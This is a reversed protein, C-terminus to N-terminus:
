SPVGQLEAPNAPKDAVATKGYRITMRVTTGSAPADISFEDSCRHMNPLGMGAGFGLSRVVENATSYGEKMAEPVNPIGPGTDQAIITIQNDDVMAEILGGMSHLIINVEAEYAAIAARRVFDPDVGRKKLAKKVQNAFTGASDLDMATVQVQVIDAGTVQGEHLASLVRRAERQEAKKAEENLRFMVAQTVDGSTLIGVLDGQENVVPLRGYGHKQFDNVAQILPLNDLVTSVQCSMWKRVPACIDNWVLAEIVDQISVIGVPKGNEVIPIGSIRNERMVSQAKRMTAETSLTIPNETMADRVRLDYLAEHFPTYAAPDIRPRM